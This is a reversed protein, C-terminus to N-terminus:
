AVKSVVEAEKYLDAAHGVDVAENQGMQGMSKAAAREQRKRCRDCLGRRYPPRDEGCEDCVREPQARAITEARGLEVLRQAAGIFRDCLRRERAGIREGAVARDRLWQALMVGLVYDDDLAEADLLRTETMGALMAEIAEAATVDHQPGYLRRSEPHPTVM